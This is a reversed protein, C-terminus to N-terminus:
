MRRLKDLHLISIKTEIGELPDVIETSRNEIRIDWGHEHADLAFRAFPERLPNAIIARPAHRLVDFLPAVADHDYLLDAAVIVDWYGSVLMESFEQTPEIISSKFSYQIEGRNSDMNAKCMTLCGRVEEV